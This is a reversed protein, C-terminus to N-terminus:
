FQDSHFRTTITQLLVTMEQLKANAAQTFNLTDTTWPFEAGTWCPAGGATLALTKKFYTDSIEWILDKAGFLESMGQQDFTGAEVKPLTYSAM